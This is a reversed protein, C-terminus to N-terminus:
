AARAQGAAEALYQRLVPRVARRVLSAMPRDEAAAARALARREDATVRFAVMETLGRADPTVTSM